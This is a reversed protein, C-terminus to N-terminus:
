TKVGTLIRVRLPATKGKVRLAYPGRATVRDQVAAFTAESILVLGTSAAACMRSATNVRDGIVTFDARKESGIMGMVVDGTDIGIGVGLGGYRTERNRGLEDQIALASRCAAAEREPGTFIAMVEDGVYKDIDGGNAQVIETQANLIMNLYRVVTEPRQGESYRTFGRVDSFLVTVKERRGVASGGISKITSSSVFKSLQFREFLGDVMGNVTRGLQGIEDNAGPLVKHDFVGSAVATCVEGIRQVPVIVARRLFQTLLLSLASALLIFIGTALLVSDRPQRLLTTIDVTIEL